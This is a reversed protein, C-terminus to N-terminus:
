SEESEEEEEDVLTLMVAPFEYLCHQGADTFWHATVKDDTVEGATMCPGGSKLQVLDGTSITVDEM